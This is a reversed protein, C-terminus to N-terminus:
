SEECRETQALRLVTQLLVNAGMEIDEWHTWEAPSHSRGGVSPVFIMGTPALRAMVQADHAAGSPMVHPDIDFDKAVDVIVEVIRTDCQVPAVESLIDFEFMLGRRRAIASLTLRFADTLAALTVASEDRVDLTFDAIGPVTNATGPHLTVRGITAVSGEGGHEELVRPVEGAFEALGAFADKRMSMPTTGAHDAEGKLKISWKSLGTIAGVVALSKGLRDLLPGQEIHLEIYAFVSEPSRRAALAKLPELGRETMAEALSVGSLDVTTELIDPNLEGAMARSGFMGGFRGEEDSFAVLEIPRLTDIAEEHIRRLCELGCLVGLAGDLRGAAPVSDLHSGVMLSPSNTSAEIRGLVNGAGDLEAHLGADKLTTRLANRAEFDAASFGMRYIGGDEGRGIEAFREIDTRLRGMNVTIDQHHKKGM